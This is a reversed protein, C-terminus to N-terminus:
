SYEVSCVYACLSILFSFACYLSESNLQYLGWGKERGANSYQVDELINRNPAERGFEVASRKGVDYNDWDPRGLQSVLILTLTLSSVLLFFGCALIQRRSMRGVPLLRAFVCWVAHPASVEQM